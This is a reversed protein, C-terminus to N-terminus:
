ETNADGGERLSCWYCVAIEEPVQKGDVTQHTIEIQRAQFLHIVVNCYHCNVQHM